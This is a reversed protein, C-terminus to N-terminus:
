GVNRRRKSICVTQGCECQMTVPWPKPKPEMRGSFRRLVYRGPLYMFFYAPCGIPWFISLVTSAFERDMSEMGRFAREYFAVYTFSVIMSYVALGGLVGGIVTFTLTWDIM